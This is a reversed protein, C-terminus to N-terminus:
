PVPIPPTLPLARSWTHLMCSLSLALSRSIPVKHMFVLSREFVHNVADYFKDTIPRLKIQEIRETLYQKWLKYSGPLEKLAREHLLNRERARSTSKFELYRLWAKLNYRNNFVDEEFPVDSASITHTDGFVPM